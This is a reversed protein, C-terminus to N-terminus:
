IHILSLNHAIGNNVKFTAKCEKFDTKEDKSASQTQTTASDKSLMAQAASLKKDIDIGKLAGDALNLSLKGNLAKKMASVTSGQMTLNVAVNGKGELM